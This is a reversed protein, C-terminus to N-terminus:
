FSVNGLAFMTSWFDFALVRASELWMALRLYQAEFILDIYLTDLLTIIYQQRLYYGSKVLSWGDSGFLQIPASLSSVKACVDSQFNFAQISWISPEILHTEISWIHHHPLKRQDTCLTCMQHKTCLLSPHGSESELEPGGKSWHVNFVNYCVWMGLHWINSRQYSQVPWYFIIVKPRCIISPHGLHAWISLYIWINEISIDIICIYETRM